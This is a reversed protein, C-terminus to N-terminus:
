MKLTLPCPRVAKSTMSFVIKLLWELPIQLLLRANKTGVVNFTLKQIKTVTMMKLLAREEVPLLLTLPKESISLMMIDTRLISNMRQLIVRQARRPNLYIMDHVRSFFLLM